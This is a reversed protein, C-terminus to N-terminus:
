ASVAGQVRQLLDRVDAVSPPAAGYTLVDMRRALPVLDRRGAGMVLERTTATPDVAASLASALWWWAAELAGRVDGRALRGQAEAAWDAAARRSAAPEVAVAAPVARPARRRSLWGAVGRTILVGLSVALLAVITWAIATGTGPPIPLDLGEVRDRLWDRIAEAVASTYDAWSAPEVRQDVGRLAQEMAEPDARPASM